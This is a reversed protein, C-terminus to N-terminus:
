VRGYGGRRGSFVVVGSAVALVDSKSKGAFDIGEHFADYVANRSVVSWVM